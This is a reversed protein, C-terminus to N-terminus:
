YHRMTKFFSYMFACSYGFKALAYWIINHSNIFRGMLKKSLWAKPLFYNKEVYDTIHKRSKKMRVRTWDVIERVPVYGGEFTVNGKKIAKLVGDIDEADIHNVSSGLMATTHADSGAVMPKGMKRARSKAVINSFRDLCLSNFVEVADFRELNRGAGDGKIDFPHAAIAIGGQEHILDITEELPLKSPVFDTLGIGLIHGGLSGIEIGPIFLVGHKKAAKKSDKWGTNVEHDTIALGSLGLKKATRFMDDPSAQAEWPIKTGKSYYTHCHLEYKM